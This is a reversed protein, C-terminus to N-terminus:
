RRDWGWGDTAGYKRAVGGIVRVWWTPTESQTEIARGCAMGVGPTGKDERGSDGLMAWCRGSEM